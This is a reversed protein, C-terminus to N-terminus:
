EGLGLHQALAKRLRSRARHLLVRQNTESIELANCVENADLGEVDRLLVVARQNAPLTAIAEELVRVAEARGLKAEPDDGWSAPPEVWMQKGDFRGPDVAPEHNALEEDSGLASFPVSRGERVGRSKARNSLIRFLWTKFSSRREFSSLGRLVALWTEQAVEEAVARSSVFALALRVLSEHHREVVAAFVKEDRALLRDVLAADDDPAARGALARTEEPGAMM